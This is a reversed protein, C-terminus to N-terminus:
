RSRIRLWGRGGQRSRGQSRRRRERSCHGARRQGQLREQRRGEQFQGEARSSGACRRARPCFWSCAPSCTHRFRGYAHDDAADITRGPCRRVGAGSSGSFSSETGRYWKDHHFGGVAPRISLTRTGSREMTKSALIAGFPLSASSFQQRATGWGAPRCPHASPNRCGQLARGTAKSHLASNVPSPTHASSQQDNDGQRRASRHLRRGLRRGCLPGIRQHFGQRRMKMRLRSGGIRRVDGVDGDVGRVQACRHQQVLIPADSDGRVRGSGIGVEVVGSPRDAIGIGGKRIDRVFVVTRVISCLAAYGRLPVRRARRRVM